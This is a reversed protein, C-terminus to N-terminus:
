TTNFFLYVCVCVKFVIASKILVSAHATKQECYNKTKNAFYKINHVHTWHTRYSLHLSSSQLYLNKKDCTHTFKKCEHAGAALWGFLISFLITKTSTFSSRLAHSVSQRKRIKTNTVNARAFYTSDIDFNRFYPYTQLFLERASERLIEKLTVTIHLTVTLNILRDTCFFTEYDRVIHFSVM